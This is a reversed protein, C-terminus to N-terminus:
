IHKVRRERAGVGVQESNGIVPCRRLQTRVIGGNALSEVSGESRRATAGHVNARDGTIVPIDANM